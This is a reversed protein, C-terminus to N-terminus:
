FGMRKMGKELEKGEVISVLKADHVDDFATSSLIEWMKSVVENVACGAQIALAQRLASILTSPKPLGSPLPSQRHFMNAVEANLLRLAWDGKQHGDTLLAVFMTPGEQLLLEEFALEIDSRLGSDEAAYRGHVPEPGYVRLIKISAILKFLLCALSTAPLRQLLSIKACYTGDKFMNHDCMGDAHHTRAPELDQLHYLLLLGARHIREWRGKLWELECSHCTVKLWHKHIEDLTALRTHAVSLARYSDIRLGPFLCTSTQPLQARKIDAVLGTEHREIIKHLRKCTLRLNALASPTYEVHPIIELWIEAPLSDAQKPQHAM